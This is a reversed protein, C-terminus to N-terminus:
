EVFNDEDEDPPPRPPRPPFVMDKDFGKALVEGEWSMNNRPIEVSDEDSDYGEFDQELHPFRERQAARRAVLGSFMAKIEPYTRPVSFFEEPVDELPVNASIAAMAVLRRLEQGERTVPPPDINDLPAIPAATGTLSSVIRRMQRRAAEPLNTM